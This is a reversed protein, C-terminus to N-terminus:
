KDISPYLTFWTLLPPVQPLTFNFVDPLTYKAIASTDTGFIYNGILVGSLTSSGQFHNLRNTHIGFSSKSFM